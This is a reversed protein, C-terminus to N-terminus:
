SSSGSHTRMSTTRMVTSQAGAVKGMSVAKSLRLPQSANVNRQLHQKHTLFRDTLEQIVLGEQQKVRPVRGAHLDDKQDLYSTLVPQPDSWPGFYHMRGLIKKAWRKTAHPFLPFDPRSKEPKILKRSRRSISM